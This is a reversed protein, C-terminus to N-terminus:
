AVPTEMVEPEAAVLAEQDVVVVMVRDAEVVPIHLQLVLLQILADPDVMVELMVVLRIVVLPELEVAAAEVTAAIVLEVTMEMNLLVQAPILLLGAMKVEQDEVAVLLAMKALDLMELDLNMEVVVVV